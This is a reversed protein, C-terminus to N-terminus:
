EWNGEEVIALVVGLLIVSPVVILVLIGACIYRIPKPVNVKKRGHLVDSIDIVLKMLGAFFSVIWIPLELGM